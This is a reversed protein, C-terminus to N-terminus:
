TLLLFVLGVDGSCIECRKRTNRNNVMPTRVNEPSISHSMSSFHTLLPQISRFSDGVHGMLVPHLNTTCSVNMRRFTKRVNLKHGTDLPQGGNLININM